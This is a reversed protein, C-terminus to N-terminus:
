QLENDIFTREPDAIRGTHLAADPRVPLVRRNYRFRYALYRALKIWGGRYM